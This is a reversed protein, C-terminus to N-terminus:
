SLKKEMLYFEGKRFDAFGVTQYGFKHYMAVAHPNQTFADLRLTYAGLVRAQQEIHAITRSGLGQRQVYPSVCLRHLVYFPKDPYQWCGNQYQEDYEQNLVYAVVIKGDLLGVYLTNRALDEELDSRAPYIEDWQPIGNEDMVAIADQFLAVVEDMQAASAQEFQLEQM